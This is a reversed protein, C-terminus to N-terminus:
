RDEVYYVVGTADATARDCGFGIALRAHLLKTTRPKQSWLSRFGIADALGEDSM